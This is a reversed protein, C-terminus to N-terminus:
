PAFIGQRLFVQDGSLTGVDGDPGGDYVQVQDLEWISRQREPVSGPVLADATTSITCVGGTSTLSSSACTAEASFPIDTVTAPIDGAGRDTIRLRLEARLEGTYDPGSAANASGCTTTGPGCRVDGMSGTIAVDSDDVGGPAGVIVKLRVSAVANAPAGNADPSGVTVASSVRVPPNCSPFALPPGHTRNPSLCPAYAPVLAMRIPSASKPRVYADATNTFTCTVTEGAVVDINTRPSGDSCSSASLTWGLPPGTEQVSYGSGPDVNFARRSSLGNADDGDDDLQFSTPILGGGATFDFDEASDPRADKVVVIKGRQSTVVTCTIHEDPGLDIDSVDSGNTCTGEEQIWGPVPVQDISYHTAPIDTFSITNSLDNGNNGDDDLDFSSPSLGGTTTFSFDQPNDPQTDLNLTISGRKRNTFTCTVVEAPGLDINSPPSGDSCTATGDWGPESAESLSYGSAPTLGSFTRSRALGNSENGDDDLQFSSPSLGGGATFSFDQPDDPQADKVVVISSQRDNTFTCTVTEGSAIDVNTVPSGDSCTASALEYGAQQTEEISYSGPPLSAFTQAQGDGVEFMPPNVPGTVRFDFTLLGDDPRIDKAVVLRAARRNVFTCTVTEAPGVDINSVPSGDSCTASALYWGAVTGETLSYGNGTSVIFERTNSLANTTIGDDDLQFNVPSMGGGATFPFDQVDDPDTDKVVVIRGANESLNQFTCTVTEGSAVDINSVPSGDSCSTQAPGWGAPTTQSVSHGSGPAVNDIVQINSLTGNSDDDLQFSSPSSGGGVMFSFDQPDNPLSDQVVIIRGRKRNTFTCTVVEEQSVDINSPDSGDSCTSSTLDWGSLPVESLSYGSGPEAIFGRANSTGNNANGDDDLAFSTPSLGGGALFTFDEPDDPVSDKVAIIGGNATVFRQIRHNAMDAVYVRDSAGVALGAPFNLQGNGSGFGGSSVIFAGSPSFRQIRGNAGDVVYVDGASDIAIGYPTNFQGNGTGATGWKGLFTGNLDFKQVRNNGSDTVYAATGALDLTIGLPQNFRGDSSGQQGWFQAANGNPFYKTVRNNGTDAIYVNGVGDVAVDSPTRVIGPIPIDGGFIQMFTGTPGFKQVRNNGSDAVYVNGAQDVTVGVPRSFQGTQNGFTGWKRIFNGSADFQQIRDNTTDAVYVDGSPAVAIGEPFDFQGDGTGQGGWQSDYFLVAGARPAAVLMVVVLALVAVVV